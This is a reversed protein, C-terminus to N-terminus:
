KFFADIITTLRTQPAENFISKEFMKLTPFASEMGKEEIFQRMCNLM